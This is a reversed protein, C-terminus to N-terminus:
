IYIYVYIYIYICACVCKFLLLSQETLVTATWLVPRGVFRLEIDKINEVPDVVGTTGV